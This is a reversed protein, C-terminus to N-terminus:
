IKFYKLTVANAALTYNPTAGVDAKLTMVKASVLGASGDAVAQVVDFSAGGGGGGGAPRVYVVWPASATSIGVVTFGTNGVKLGWSGTVTGVSCGLTPADSSADLAALVPRTDFSFDAAGLIANADSAFNAGPFIVCQAPALNDATPRKTKTVRTTKDWSYIEGIAYNLDCSNAGDMIVQRQYPGRSAVAPMNSVPMEGRM